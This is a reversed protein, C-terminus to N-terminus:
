LNEVTRGPVTDELRNGQNKTVTGPQWSKLQRLDETSAKIVNNAVKKTDAAKASRLYMKSMAVGDEHHRTMMMAFQRDIDGGDNMNQMESASKNMKDMAKRSFDSSTAKAPAQHNNMFQTLQMNDTRSDDTIKQALHKLEESRGNEMEIAAMEIAGDHHRKMMMAFDHDADGSMAMNQMDRMMNNMATTLAKGANNGKADDGNLPQDAERDRMEPSDSASETRSTNSKCSFVAVLATLLVGAAIGHLISLRKM